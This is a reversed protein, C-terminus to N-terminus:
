KEIHKTDTISYIRLNEMTAKGGQSDISLSTYPETPFVLNTLVFRGDNGFLEVSSRDVFIRLSVRGNDEHTPAVTVAPFNESFDTIGSRRRDVAMTHDAPNYTM